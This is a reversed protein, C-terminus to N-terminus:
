YGQSHPFLTKNFAECLNPIIFIFINYGKGGGSHSLLLLPFFCYLSVYICHLPVQTSPRTAQRPQWPTVKRRSSRVSDGPLRGAARGLGAPPGWAGTELGGLESGAAGTGVECGPPGRVWLCAPSPFSRPADPWAQVLTPPGHARGRPARCTPGVPAVPALAAPCVCSLCVRLAVAEVTPLAAGGPVLRLDRM